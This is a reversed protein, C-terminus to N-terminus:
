GSTVPFLSSGEAYVTLCRGVADITFYTDSYPLQVHKGDDCRDSNALSSPRQAM